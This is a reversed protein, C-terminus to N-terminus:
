GFFALDNTNAQRQKGLHHLALLPGCVRQFFDAARLAHAHRKQLLRNTRWSSGRFMPHVLFRGTRNEFFQEGIGTRVDLAVHPGMGLQEFGAAVAITGLVEIIQDANQVTFDPEDSRGVWFALICVIVGYRLSM